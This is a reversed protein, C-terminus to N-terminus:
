GGPAFREVSLIPEPCWPTDGETNYDDDGGLVLVTGDALALAHGDKRPELLDGARSWRDAEPDYLETTRVTTAEADDLSGTQGGAVLVRGDLLLAVQPGYRPSSLPGKKTWSGSDPDFRSVLGTLEGTGGFLDGGDPGGIALAGGDRLAVLAYGFQEPANVRTWTDRAPHYVFATPTPETDSTDYGTALARGSSLGILHDISTTPSLPATVAWTTTGPDYVEGTTGGTRRESVVLIRGDNIAVALPAGRAVTLLPGDSWARGAPSFIKTSSFPFDDSNTGGVVMVSGDRLAVTAPVKRPKNLSAVETWADAVPDYLEARESGPVAGGPHCAFDDGVALVTGDGLAVADFGTRARLMPAAARWQGISPTASPSASASISVTPTATAAATAPAVGAPASSAPSTSVTPGGCGGIAVAISVLGVISLRVAM